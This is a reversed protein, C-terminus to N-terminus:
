GSARRTPEPVRNHGDSNGNQADARSVFV